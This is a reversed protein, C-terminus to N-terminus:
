NKKSLRAWLEARRQRDKRLIGEYAEAHAVADVQRDGRGRLCQHRAEIICATGESKLVRALSRAIERALDEQLILRHAFCNVLAALRGFGVVRETPMYAVHATGEFPLLHHPCMSHFRLESILVLEDQSGAPVPYTEGLAEEPTTQYGALFEERWAEAVRRPTEKLNPDSRDLGSADLFAEVARELAAPDPKGKARKGRM